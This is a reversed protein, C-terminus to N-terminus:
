DGVRVTQGRALEVDQSEERMALRVGLDCVSQLDRDVRDLSVNGIEVSLDVRATSRVGSREGDARSEALEAGYGTHRYEAM